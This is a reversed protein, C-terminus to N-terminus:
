QERSERARPRGRVLAVHLAALGADDVADAGADARRMSCNAHDRRSTRLGDTLIGLFRRWVEPDVDRTCESLSGLMLQLLPMDTTAVDPRLSGDAQAREVLKSVIPFM